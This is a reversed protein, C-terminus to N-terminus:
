RWSNAEIRISVWNYMQKVGEFEVEESSIRKLVKKSESEQIFEFLNSRLNDMLNDMVSNRRMPYASPLTSLVNHYSILSSNAQSPFLKVLQGNHSGLSLIEASPTEPVEEWWVGVLCSMIEILVLKRSLFLSLM